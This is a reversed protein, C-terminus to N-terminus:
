KQNYRNKVDYTQILYNLNEAAKDTIAFPPSKMYVYQKTKYIPSNLKFKQFLIHQYKAATHTQLYSVIRHYEKM